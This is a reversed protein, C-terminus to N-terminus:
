IAGATEAFDKLRPSLDILTDAPVGALEAVRDGVQLSHWAIGEIEFLPALQKLAISRRHDGRHEKNGGWVVGVKLRRQDALVGAWRKVLPTRPMLYPVHGPINDARTEFIRPLGLLPAHVNTAQPRRGKPVITINDVPLSAAMRVLIRPLELVVHQAREAV